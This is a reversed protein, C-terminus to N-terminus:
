KNMGIRDELASVRALLAQIYMFLAEVEERCIPQEM